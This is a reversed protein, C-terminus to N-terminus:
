ILYTALGIILYGVLYFGAFIFNEVLNLKMRKFLIFCNIAIFPITALFFIKIHQNFYYIFDIIFQLLIRETTHTPPFAEDINIRKQYLSSLLAMIGILLLSLYFINYYRIRKGNIYDLVAQGPKLIAEKITFLIGKDLHWIGHILDHFIFHKMTIRHTDTKQGCQGCYKELAEAGCNLCHKHEMNGNFKSAIYM